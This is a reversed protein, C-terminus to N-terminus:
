KPITDPSCALAHAKAQLGSLNFFDYCIPLEHKKQIIKAWELYKSRNNINNRFVADQYKRKYIGSKYLPVIV